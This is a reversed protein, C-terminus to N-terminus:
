SYKGDPPRQALRVAVYVIAGLVVIGLVMMFTMSFWGWDMSHYM